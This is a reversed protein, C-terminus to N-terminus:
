KSDKRTWLFNYDSYGRRRVPSSGLNARL